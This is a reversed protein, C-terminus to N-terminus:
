NASPQCELLKHSLAAIAARASSKRRAVALPLNNGEALAFAPQDDPISAFIRERTLTALAKVVSPRSSSRNLVVVRNRNLEQLDSYQSLYRSLSLPSELVLSVVLDSKSVATRTAINRPISNGPQILNDELTSSTDIIVIEFEKRAFHILQSVTDESVEVWRALGTLGTLARFSVRGNRVFVSLRELQELDLRGQRILRACGTLGAPAERLGLLSSISPTHTDLDLLLVRFGQEAFEYSLNLALSSKGTAGAPGTVAFALALDLAKPAKSVKTAMRSPALTM